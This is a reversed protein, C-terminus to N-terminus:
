TIRRGTTSTQVCATTPADYTHRCCRAVSQTAELRFRLQYPFLLSPIPSWFRNVGAWQVERLFNFNLIIRMIAHLFAVRRHEEIDKVTLYYLLLCFQNRYGSSRHATEFGGLLYLADESSNLEHLFLWVVLSSISSTLTTDLLFPVSDYM